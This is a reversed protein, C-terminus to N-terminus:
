AALERRTTAGAAAAAQKQNKGKSIKQYKGATLWSM